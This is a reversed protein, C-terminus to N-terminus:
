DFLFASWGWRGVEAIKACISLDLPLQLRQWCSNSISLYGVFLINVTLLTVWKKGPFLYIIWLPKSAGEVFIKLDNKFNDV